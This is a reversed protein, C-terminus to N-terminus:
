QTQAMLSTPLAHGYRVEHYWLVPINGRPFGLTLPEYILARCFELFVDLLYDSLSLLDIGFLIRQM